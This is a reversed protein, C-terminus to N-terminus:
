ASFNKQVGSETGRWTALQVAESSVQYIHTSADGGRLISGSTPFPHVLNPHSQSSHQKTAMSDSSDLLHSLQLNSPATVYDLTHKNYMDLRGLVSRCHM